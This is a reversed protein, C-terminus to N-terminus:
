GTNVPFVHPICATCISHDGQSDDHHGYQDGAGRCGLIQATVVAAFHYRFLINLITILAVMLGAITFVNQGATGNTSLRYFAAISDVVAFWVVIGAPFSIYREPASDASLDDFAVM